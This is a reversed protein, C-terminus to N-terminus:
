LRSVLLLRSSRASVVGAEARLWAPDPTKGEAWALLAAPLNAGAVHAFPYSGGLCANLELVSIGEAGLFVDCTLPGIHGLAQALTQGLQGLAALREDAATVASATEGGWLALKQVAFTTAYRGSLDNVIELSYEDGRIFEQILVTPEAAVTNAALNPSLDAPAFGTLTTRALRRTLLDFGLRLEAEDEPFELGSAEAGWRPKLVLPFTLEGTELARLAEALALYTKPTRIGHSRLFTYTQWKDACRAVVEASSIMVQTGVEAFRDRAAALYPLEYVSLPVLLGIQAEQVFELLADVYHVDGVPPVVVADDAEQLAPAGVRADAAFVRGGSGVVRSRLAKQFYEVLESRRGASTLLTNM